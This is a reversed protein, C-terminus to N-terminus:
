YIIYPALSVGCISHFYLQSTQRAQNLAYEVLKARMSYELTKIDGKLGDVDAEIKNIKTAFINTFESTNLGLTTLTKQYLLLSLYSVRLYASPASRPPNSSALAPKLLFPTLLVICVLYYRPKCTVISIRPAQLLHVKTRLTQQLM